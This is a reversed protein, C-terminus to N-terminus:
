TWTTSSGGPDRDPTSHSFRWYTNPDSSRLLTPRSPAPTSASAAVMSGREVVAVSKGLKAGAIAAKQGGTGSGIVVLDYDYVRIV